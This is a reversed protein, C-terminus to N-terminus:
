KTVSVSEAAFGFYREQAVLHVLFARASNAFAGMAVIENTAPCATLQLSGIIYPALDCGFEHVLATTSM